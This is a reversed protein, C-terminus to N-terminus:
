SSRTPWGRDRVGLRRLTVCVYRVHERYVAAFDIPAPDGRGTSQRARPSVSPPNRHADM